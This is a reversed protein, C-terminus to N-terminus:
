DQQIGALLWRLDQEGKVYHWIESFSEAPSGVEESVMGSFLVSAVYGNHEKACDLLRCELNPFDALSTNQAIHDKLSDFLDATMYKRIEGVNEAGNLSQLHLFTAKAQRLFSSVDTGDPLRDLTPSHNTNATSAGQSSSASGISPINPFQEAQKNFLSGVQPQSQQPYQTNHSHAKQRRRLFSFLMFGGLGLLLLSGIGPGTDQNSQRSLGDRGEGSSQGYAHNNQDQQATQAPDGSLSKGLMYGGAAGIAGAAVARGIGSGQQPASQAQRPAQAYSPPPPPTQYMPRARQPSVSRNMGYSGGKGLRAAEAWPALVFASSTLMVMLARLISHM